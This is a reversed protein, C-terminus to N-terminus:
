KERASRSHTPPRGRAPLCPGVRCRAAEAAGRAGRGPGAAATLAGPQARPRPDRAAAGTDSVRHRGLAAPGRRRFVARGAQAAQSGKGGRLDQVGIWSGPGRTLAATQSSLSAPTEPSGLLRPASARAGGGPFSASAKAGASRRVWRCVPTWGPSALLASIGSDGGGESRQPVRYGECRKEVKGCKTANSTFSRLRKCQMRRFVAM